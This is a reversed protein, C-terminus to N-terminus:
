RGHDLGVTDMLTLYLDKPACNQQKSFFNNMCTVRGEIIKQKIMNLNNISIGITEIAYLYIM